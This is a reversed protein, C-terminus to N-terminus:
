FMLAREVIFLLWVYSYTNFLDLYVMTYLKCQLGKRREEEKLRKKELLELKKQKKQQQAKRSREVKERKKEKKEQARIQSLRNREKMMDFREVVQEDTLKEFKSDQLIYIM